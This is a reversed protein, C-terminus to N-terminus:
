NDNFNPKIGIHRLTSEMIDKVIPAAVVSGFSSSQPEDVVVLIAIEPDEVPAFAFFSAIVKDDDYVGDVLKITTGTKGGMRIGPISAVKGSGNNIVSELMLKIKRSTDSSVIKRKIDEKNEYIVEDDKEIKNVIKPEVLNGDNVLASLTRILQLPTVSVGHGFGMTALEVPGINDVSRVNYNQVGPLQMELPDNLGFSVLGEHFKEKGINQAVKAFVPNCSNELAETLTERGHSGPYIWCKLKYDYVEHYGTTENFETSPTVVNEELGIAATITKFTSGPEYIKSVVTNKWKENWLEVKETESLSNYEDEDMDVNKGRPNNLDYSPESAMALVNGTKVEMVIASINKAGTEEIGKLISKESFHQIVEDITLYVNAGDVAEIREESGYPLPRGIADTITRLVGDTGKLEDNLMYEIGAIGESDITTHGIVRSAFSNYPYVRTPDDSFWIGSFDGVILQDKQEQTIQRALTFRKASKEYLYDFSEDSMNLIEIVESKRNIDFAEKSLYARYRTISHALKEGNRDFIIGRKAPLTFSKTQSALAKTAYYDGKLIQIDYYSIAIYVIVLALLFVVISLRIKMQTNTKNNRM